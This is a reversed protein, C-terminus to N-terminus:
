PFKDWEALSKYSLQNLTTVTRSSIKHEFEHGGIDRTDVIMTMNATPAGPFGLQLTQLLYM